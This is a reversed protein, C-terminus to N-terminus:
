SQREALDKYSALEINRSNIVGRVDDDTLADLEDKWNYNWHDYPNPTHNKGPHCMIESFGGEPLKGLIDILHSKDLQGGYFFGFFHDPTNLITKRKAKRCFYNLVIQELARFKKGRSQKSFLRVRELPIRVSNIEYKGCLKGVIDFIHPFMHLHQHGDVHSINIGADLVRMIQADLENEIEDLNLTKALYKHAFAWSTQHFHGESNVLSPIMEPALVPNEEVLSLHVGIDLSPNDYCLKVAHNFARGNAMISASTVIGNLHAEVIGENVSKSIGFDDANVILKLM